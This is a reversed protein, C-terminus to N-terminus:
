YKTHQKRLINRVFALALALVQPISLGKLSEFLRGLASTGEQQTPSM